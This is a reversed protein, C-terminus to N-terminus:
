QELDPKVMGPDRGQGQKQIQQTAANRMRDVGCLFEEQDAALRGLRQGPPPSM